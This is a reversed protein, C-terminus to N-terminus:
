RSSGLFRGLDKTPDLVASLLKKTYEHKPHQFIEDVSGMEVIKGSEMVCIDDSIFAVTGLDHGIFLYTLQFKGQLEKLLNLIQAQISLDLSSIPEDLIIFEPQLALARAISVRQAQGGSLQHPYREAYSAELGVMELLDYVRAIREEKTGIKHVVLPESISKMVTMKPNLSSFPDQFVTQVRRRFNKLEIGTLQNIEVGDFKVSGSTPALLKALISAVTSKGSGSEGVVGLARGRYISFDVNDVARLITRSSRKGIKYDKVLSKVEILPNTDMNMM